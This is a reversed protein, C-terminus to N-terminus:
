ETRGHPLVLGLVQAMKRHQGLNQILRPAAVVPVMVKVHVRAPPKVWQAVLSAHRTKTIVCM